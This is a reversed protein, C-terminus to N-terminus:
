HQIRSLLPVWVHVHKQPDLSTHDSM